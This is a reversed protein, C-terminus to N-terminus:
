SAVFLPALTKKARNGYAALTGQGQLAGWPWPWGLLGLQWSRCPPPFRTPGCQWLTTVLGCVHQKGHHRTLPMCLTAIAVYVKRAIAHLTWSKYWAWTYIAASHESSYYQQMINCSSCVSIDRFKQTRSIHVTATHTKHWLSPEHIQASISWLTYALADDNCAALVCMSICVSRIMMM